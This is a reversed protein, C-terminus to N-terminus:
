SVPMTKVVVCFANSIFSLELPCGGEGGLMEDSGAITAATREDQVNDFFSPDTAEAVRVAKVGM